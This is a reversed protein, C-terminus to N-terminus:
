IGRILSLMSHKGEESTVIQLYLAVCRHGQLCPNRQNHSHPHSKNGKELEKIHELNEVVHIVELFLFSCLCTDTVLM